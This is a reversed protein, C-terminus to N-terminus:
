AIRRRFFDRRKKVSETRTNDFDTGNNSFDTTALINKDHFVDERKPQFFCSPSFLILISFLFLVMRRLAAM